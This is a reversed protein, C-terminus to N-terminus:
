GDAQRGRRNLVTQLGSSERAFTLREFKRKSPPRFEPSFLRHKEGCFHFKFSLGPNERCGMKQRKRSVSPNSAASSVSLDM